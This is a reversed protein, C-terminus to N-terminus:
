NTAGEGFIDEYIEKTEGLLTKNACVEVAEELIQFNYPGLINELWSGMSEGSNTKYRQIDGDRIISINYTIRPNTASSDAIWTYKEISITDGILKENPKPFFFTIRKKDRVESGKGNDFLSFDFRSQCMLENETNRSIIKSLEEFDKDKFNSIELLIKSGGNENIESILDILEPGRITYNNEDSRVMTQFDFIKSTDLIKNGNKSSLSFSLYYSEHLGSLDLESIDETLVGATHMLVQQEKDTLVYNETTIIKKVITFAGKAISHTSSDESYILIGGILALITTYSLWISKRFTQM